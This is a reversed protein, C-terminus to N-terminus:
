YHPKNCKNCTKHLQVSSGEKDMDKTYTLYGDPTTTWKKCFSDGTKKKQFSFKENLYISYEGEPLEIVSLGEENTSVEVLKEQNTKSVLYITSNKLPKPVKLADLVETPPNAGGCYDSTLMFTVSTEQDSKNSGNVAKSSCAWFFLIFFLLNFYKKKFTM